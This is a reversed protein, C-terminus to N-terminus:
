GDILKHWMDYNKDGPKEDPHKKLHHLQKIREPEPYHVAKWLKPRHLTDYTLMTHLFAGTGIHFTKGPVPFLFNSFTLHLERIPTVQYLSFWPDIWNGIGPENYTTGVAYINDPDENMKGLYEEVIGGEILRIDNDMTLMLSTQVREMGYDLASGHGMHKEIWVLDFDMATASSGLSSYDNDYREDKSYAPRAYATNFDGKNDMQSGDDAVVVKIGPYYKRINRIAGLTFRTQMWNCIVVTVDELTYIM